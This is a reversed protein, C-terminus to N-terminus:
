IREDAKYASISMMGNVDFPISMSSIMFDGKIDSDADEVYIRTNPLLYYIPICQINITNAYSTYTHLATRLTEYASVYAIGVSINDKISDDIVVYPKNPADNENEVFLIDEFKPDFICNVANDNIVTNRYGIKEVSLDKIVNDGVISSPSLMDLFYSIQNSDKKYKWGTKGANQALSGDFTVVFLKPFEEKFEKALNSNDGDAIM